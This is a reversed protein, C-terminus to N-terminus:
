DHEEDPHAQDAGPHSRHDAGRLTSYPEPEGGRIRGLGNRIDSKVTEDPRDLLDAVEQYTHGGFYALAIAQREAAPLPSLLPWATPGVLRALAADDAAAGAASDVTVQAADAARRANDGRLVGPARDHALMLLFLRLSGRSPDFEEPKRWLRLFVEQVMEDSQEEECLRRALRRVSAGHRSYAEALADHSGRAVGIVLGSDSLLAVDEDRDAGRGPEESRDHGLDSM